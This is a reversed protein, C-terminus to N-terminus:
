YDAAGDYTPESLPCNIVIRDPEILASSAYAKVLWSVPEM